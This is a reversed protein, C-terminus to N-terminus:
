SKSITSAKVTSSIAFFSETETLSIAIFIENISIFPYKLFVLAQFYSIM